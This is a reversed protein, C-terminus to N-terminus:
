LVSEVPTPNRFNYSLRRKAKNYNNDHLCHTMIGYFCNFKIVVCKIYIFITVYVFVTCTEARVFAM